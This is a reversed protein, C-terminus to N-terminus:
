RLLTVHGVYDVMDGTSPDLFFKEGSTTEQIIHGDTDIGLIKIAECAAAYKFSVLKKASKSSNQKTAPKISIQKEFGNLKIYLDTSVTKMDGTEADVTFLEGKGTKYVPCGELCAVLSTKQQALKNFKIKLLPDLSASTKQSTANSKQTQAQVSNAAMQSSLFAAVVIARKQNKNM